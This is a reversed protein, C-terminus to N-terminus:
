FILNRKEDLVTSPFKIKLLSFTISVTVEYNLCYSKFLPYYFFQVIKLFHKRKTVDIITVVFHKKGVLTNQIKHHDITQKVFKLIM